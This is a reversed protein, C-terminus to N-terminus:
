DEKDRLMKAKVEELIQQRILDSEANKNLISDVLLGQTRRDLAGSEIQKQLVEGRELAKKLM